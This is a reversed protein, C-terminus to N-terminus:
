KNLNKEIELSNETYIKAQIVFMYKKESAYPFSQIEWKSKISSDITNRKKIWCM